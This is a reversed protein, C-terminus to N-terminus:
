ARPPREYRTKDAETIERIVRCPNGAALVGAPISRTVVSGAGIVTNDGITVGPLVCVQAGIWVNDGITIPYAYELGSNRRGSDLPHGATYFGCGPAIFVNDGFTVKAGDLIVCNTNMFFNEGISINYGYDCYFPSVITFAKGAKGLLRRLLSEREAAMSPRMLNLEHTMDACEARERLLEEDYNADYLLGEAAKQKESKMDNCHKQQKNINCHRTIGAPM